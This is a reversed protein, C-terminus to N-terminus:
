LAATKTILARAAAPTPARLVKEAIKKAKQCDTKKVQERVLALMTPTMSFYRLGLGLLLPTLEADGALEGCLTLPCDAHSANAVIQTLLQLVAPHLPDCLPALMENNRDMAMTYQILDNTGISFFDLSKALLRMIFVAAPVEIMAGLLPRSVELGRTARLQETAATLLKLTRDLEHPHALMPVLIRLNNYEAHARLLARLQTMFLDPLLLCYRIARVGLAPNVEIPVSEVSPPMKDGGIDLTRIVVPLPHLNKLVQRYIEFQEDEEPLDPRDMFLFETRFLGIGDAGCHISAATEDPLEINTHLYVQEGDKSGIGKGQSKKQWRRATSKKKDPQRKKRVDAQSPNVIAVQRLTDLLVTDNHHVCALMGRAGVLAPINMSRALIATHSNGSGSESIFGKYGLQGLRIVDAPAIDEGVLLANGGEAIDAGREGGGSEMATLVRRMVHEIDRYRERLYEDPVHRFHDIMVEVRERLAWEANILRRRILGQPKHSFEKDMLLMLHLDIFPLIESADEFAAQTQQRLAECEQRALQLAKEYRLIEAAVQTKNIRYRKIDHKGASYIHVRGSVVAEGIGVGSIKHVPKGDAAEEPLAPKHPNNPVTDDSFGGAILEILAAVAEKEDAGEAVLRLESGAAAALMLLGAISKANAKRKGKYISLESRYQAALRALQASPRAHLGRENVIVVNAEIM